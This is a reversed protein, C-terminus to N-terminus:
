TPSQTPWHAALDKQCGGNVPDRHAQCRPWSSVQWVETSPM